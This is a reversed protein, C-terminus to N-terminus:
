SKGLAKVQQDPPVPYLRRQDRLLGGLYGLAISTLLVLPVYIIVIIIYLLGVSNIFMVILVSLVISFFFLTLGIWKGKSRSGAVYGALFSSPIFILILTFELNFSFGGFIFITDLPNMIPGHISNYFDTILQIIHPIFLYFLVGLLLSGLLLGLVFRKKDRKATNDELLKSVVPDFKPGEEIITVDHIKGKFMESYQTLIKKLIEPILKPYDAASTIAAVSLKLTEDFHVFLQEGTQMEIKKLGSGVAEKAFNGVAILFGSILLEDMTSKVFNKSYIAIGGETIIYLNHIM